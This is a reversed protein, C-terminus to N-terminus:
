RDAEDDKIIARILNMFAPRTRKGMGFNKDHVTNLIFKSMPTDVEYFLNIKAQLQLYLEMVEYGTREEYNMVNSYTKVREV